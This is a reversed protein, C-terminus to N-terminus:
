PCAAPFTRACTPPPAAVWRRAGKSCRFGTEGNGSCRRARHPPPLARPRRAGASRSTASWRSRASRPSRFDIAQLLHGFATPHRPAVEHLLRLQGLAREGYAHEGTLAALRLLGYRPARAAPPSRTTRSTRAGRWCSSTTLRPRRLLRRARRRRLARGDHRGARAGRAFWRPEFTAEYLTSCRRSSSPTTRWTPPRAQAEGAKYTRLLRGDADRVETLLFDARGRAADVYDDRELVAGADALASIM